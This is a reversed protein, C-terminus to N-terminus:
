SIVKPVPRVNSDFLHVMTGDEVDPLEAASMARVGMSRGGAIWWAECGLHFPQARRVVCGGRRQVAGAPRRHRTGLVSVPRSPNCTVGM